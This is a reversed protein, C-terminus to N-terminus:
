MRDLRFSFITKTSGTVIECFKANIAVSIVFILKHRFPMLAGIPRWTNQQAAPVRIKSSLVQLPAHPTVIDLFLRGDTQSAMYVFSSINM